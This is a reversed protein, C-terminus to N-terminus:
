AAELLVEPVHIRRVHSKGLLRLDILVRDLSYAASRPIALYVPCFGEHGQMKTFALVRLQERTHSTDVDRATKAEAFGFIGERSHRAMADPRVGQIVPPTPLNAFEGSRPITGDVATLAFGDHAM